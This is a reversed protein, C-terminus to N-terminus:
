RSVGATEEREGEGEWGMIRPRQWGQVRQSYLSTSEPWDTCEQFLLLSESRTCEFVDNHSFCPRRGSVLMLLAAGGVGGSISPVPQYTVISKTRAGREEKGVSWM